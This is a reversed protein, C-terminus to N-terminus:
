AESVFTGYNPLVVLVGDDVLRQVAKSITTRSASHQDALDGVSPIQSGPPWEGSEVRARLERTVRDTPYEPRKV